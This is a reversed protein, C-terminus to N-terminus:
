YPSIQTGLFHSVENVASVIEELMEQKEPLPAETASEAHACIGALRSAGLNASAGKFRHAASKWLAAEGTECAARLKDLNLQAQSLFLDALEKREEKTGDLFLAFQMQNIFPPILAPTTSADENSSVSTDEAIMDPLWRTFIASLKAPEIPKSIYDDMGAHLCTERDGVMANATMAVITTHRNSSNEAKRIARTAEYGDMEPMQCDMFIIDYAVSTAAEFAEKGNEAQDIHRAGMKRLLKQIFLLNIPHDDAVLIRANCLATTKTVLQQQNPRNVPLANPEALTLPIAFTFASGRQVQSEVRITGQMLHALERSIALGLGTGGFKRTTSADAQTFKDFISDLKDEPIGIGSDKVIFCLFPKGSEAKLLVNLSVEGQMTFKLSNSILNHLVQQLRGPDGIICDPVNSGIDVRFDLNRSEAMPTFLKEIDSLLISLDFPVYELELDGAEVKSIDLIDNLLALLNSSANFITNACERQEANLATDLLLGCMGLMANMPTRLEHSMNALFNSKTLNAEEAKLRLTNAEQLHEQLEMATAEARLNALRMQMMLKQQETIDRIAIVLSAKTSFIIRSVNVEASFSTGDERLAHTQHLPSSTTEAETIWSEVEERSAATFLASVPIGEADISNYGFMKEAVPSLSEIYGDPSCTIIGDIISNLITRTRLESSLFEIAQKESAEQMVKRETIDREISIFYTCETQEDPVPSISIEVWYEHKQKNYQVLEAVLPKKEHLARRIRNLTEHDTRPGQLIQPTKGLVEEPTYGTLRTFANNVYLIHQDLSDRPDVRTIILADNTCNPVQQLLKELNM